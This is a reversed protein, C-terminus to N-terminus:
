IQPFLRRGNHVIEVINHDPPRLHRGQHDIVTYKEVVLHGVANGVKALASNWPRIDYVFREIKARSVILPPEVTALILKHLHSEFFSDAGNGFLFLWWARSVKDQDTLKGVLETAPADVPPDEPLVFAVEGRRFGANGFSKATQKPLDRVVSRDLKGRRLVSPPM